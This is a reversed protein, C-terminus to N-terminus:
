DGREEPEGPEAAAHVSQEAVLERLLATAYCGRPLSFGLELYAGRADAGLQMRLEGAIFRLARRAGQVRIPGGSLTKEPLEEATLVRQELEFPQGEPQTMRHGFLPGTPSIELRDARPQEIAADLVRFVAGSAHLWALDGEWLQGLGTELRAAVVRNFLHSQYASVYFQRMFRDIVSLARRLDGGRQLARLVRRETHFVIPWSHAAAAYNGQEYLERARRIGGYDGEGPRGLLLSIAEEPAGRLMARGIEWNNGRQGFRQPGFYNPVGVRM